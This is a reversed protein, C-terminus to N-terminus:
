EDAEAADEAAEKETAEANEEASEPGLSAVCEAMRIVNGSLEMGVRVPRLVTDAPADVSHESELVVVRNRDVVEGVKATYETAGMETFAARLAGAMASYQKGFDDDQYKEQLASLRDLTPLFEALISATAAFKNSSNLM